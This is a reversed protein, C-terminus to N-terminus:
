KRQRSRRQLYLNFILALLLIIGIVMTKLYISIDMLDLGNRLVYWIFVGIITHGVGGEGGFLSTGGIVVAAIGAILLSEFTGTQTSGLRGLGLMGAVAVTLGAIAFVEVRILKVNVGSLRAAESNGGVMYVYRGFRTYRLVFHYIAAVVFALIVLIPIGEISANGLYYLIEPVQFFPRGETIYETAGTFVTMTALTVAFSPIGIYAVCAGNILGLLIGLVLMTPIILISSWDLEVLLFATLVSVLTMMNAFSLDIEAILLIMTIGCCVIILLASSRLINILNQATSFRVAVFSFFICLALLTIIPAILRIHKNFLDLFAGQLSKNASGTM